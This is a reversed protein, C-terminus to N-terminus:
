SCARSHAMGARPLDEFTTRKFPGPVAFSRRNTPSLGISPRYALANREGVQTSSNGLAEEAQSNLSGSISPGGPGLVKSLATPRLNTPGGPRLHQLARVTSANLKWRAPGCTSITRRQCRTRDTRFSLWRLYDPWFANAVGDALRDRQVAASRGARLRLHLGGDKVSLLCLGRTNRGM